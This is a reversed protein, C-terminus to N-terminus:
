KIAAVEIDGSRQLVTVGTDHPHRTLLIDVTGSGVSLNTIQLWDLAAPLQARDLVVQGADADIRLGLCAGLLMYVTGAAWAQPACAVPYLTPHEGARRHFGCVLEPLRNLDVVASLDLMANMVRAAKDRFGYRALGAAVIANDHPWVSGNHYSMPNYRAEGAAVTRVGWGSFADDALLADAVRAARDPHAVGAYLCHGANSSKVRCPRKEGDLALAYTGIEECWFDREFALRVAEARARWREAAESDGRVIALEAAGRWAAYAYGQIECMAIPAAALRGDAHFVSDYSDKWGQQVLGQGSQRAYEIFGDGDPDGAGAIWDLAALLHPWLQDLFERDGTRRFYAHALMVFLPTSDASGYYRGFPIEGLAAMEGRRMEHIIKGPQADQVDSAAVAQTDALFALVGRALSPEAWLLELATILGDRGFPTSFWPIGAYPYMGYPTDTTMMRLDASSRRILRNFSENSSTVACRLQSDARLDERKATLVSLYPPIDSQRAGVECTVGLELSESAHRELTLVFTWTGQEVRDPTRSWRLRTRREVNDLGQYVCTSEQGDSGPLLQGRRARTTGRVEFVDAYDAAYRVTLPVTITQLGHNTVRICDAFGAESLVRSRFIHIEGHPVAVHGERVMDPNTLDATFIVNDESITSSLFLPRRSGLLLELRSLFRTGDYYFGQQSRSAPVIDGYEDFVGFSDGHKMVRLRAGSRETEAVISYQDDQRLTDPAAM